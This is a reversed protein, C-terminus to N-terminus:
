ASITSSCGNADTVTVTYTGATLGSLDQPDSDPDQSGNNSWDYTYGATGGSVALDIAGNSGGNCSVNTVGAISLNLATPETITASITSSCGNADTVTVTYTGANLGSLDQPDSDPDQSGNNSWDYTYGATGGSVALDIAGNSGGNCNVNTVGAISLNLATPQTVTASVTSFCGNVDTVTVTYTGATLGSLDQPDSDPDQSGNNSWDYTYGATGGSVALDIAGNSGGNCSVNTVGAISLNLATPETITASITSSCGNADTVTVTYTGATLGSLDQPDSDPDQSGNNSWDYTYGATGGSVALDIAGNSGGNCSVNTVGAISLNLATPETITASITSSCGNADTVTVTYTGATLGSLDQPDSDPDQSGNNSWDYSYGATGGSVALDIAGNSGGNCSVNTVGAISLNLPTPETITASITASCGNADTVTVTYTGAALGSLDQPDSDPDQSGNNSWDYTYGATGGSVALDIAGNSGGNCSVNTVGAISLNLATPETITASITSSCGNADTVTVTYTGATLGSLDQPDSDPDQSGNNNWDYTYGATGGSVALDIAGNSGGNCSVNTVGAISLNLATPQTVTASITSSCGNADTVTVTYTGATLGSLDQPDSDPDQSGNNSWDYSYGATGGSVALDIAGNSGGNCSVNTVGAISLNLATPETITASITSSCGNADTVTVTYTGATLGSLDQPDSDPDQSGNNSWDYTYNPTGGSVALDIAGNSGGNCSVNTQGAISLMLSSAGPVSFSNTASCSNADTVTVTYIGASLGTLDQPDTDPDQPGNNSWDYTYGPTGGAVNIDIAGDAGGGCSAGTILQETISIVAPETITATVTTTCGVNDTITVTYTGAALGSLDQTDNDPDDPGDNSWDYTFAPRGGAVTLDIAGDTNGNCSINTAVAKYSYFVGTLDLGDLEQYYDGNNASTWANGTILEFPGNAPGASYQLTAAVYETCADWDVGTFPFAFQFRYYDYTGDNGVPGAFTYSYPSSFVTLSGGLTSPFRVTFIGGSYTLDVVDETARLRVELKDSNAPFNVIRMDVLLQATAHQACFVGLLILIPYIFKKM